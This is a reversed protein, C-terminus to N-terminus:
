CARTDGELDELACWEDTHGGWEDIWRVLARANEEIEIIEGVRADVRSLPLRRDGAKM